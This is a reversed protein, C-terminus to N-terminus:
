GFSIMPDSLLIALVNNNYLLGIMSQVGNSDDSQLLNVIQQYYETKVLVAFPLAIPVIFGGNQLIELVLSTPLVKYGTPPNVVLLNNLMMISEANVMEGFLNFEGVIFNTFIIDGYDLIPTERIFQRTASGAFKVEKVLPIYENNHYYFLRPDVQKYFGTVLPFVDAPPVLGFPIEYAANEEYAFLRPRVSFFANPDIEYTIYFKNNEFTVALPNIDNNLIPLIIQNSAVIMNKTIAVPGTTTIVLDTDFDFLGAIYESFQIKYLTGVLGIRNVLVNYYDFFGFSQDKETGSLIISILDDVFLEIDGNYTLGYYLPVGNGEDIAVTFTQMNVLISTDIIIEVASGVGTVIEYDINDPKFTVEDLNNDYYFLKESNVLSLYLKNAVGPKPLLASVEAYYTSDGDGILEMYFDFVLQSYQEAFNILQSNFNFGAMIRSYAIDFNRVESIGSTLLANIDLIYMMRNLYPLGDNIDQNIDWVKDISGINWLRYINTTDLLDDNTMEEFTRYDIDDVNLIGNENQTWYSNFTINNGTNQGILGNLYLASNNTTSIDPIAYSNIISGFGQYINNNLYGILGGINDDGTLNVQAYSNIIESSDGAKFGEGVMGGIANIGIINSQKIYSELISLDARTRGVFGGVKNDGNITSDTVRNNIIDISVENYGVLGGVEELGTLNLNIVLNDVLLSTDFNQGILGGVSNGGSINASVLNDILTMLSAYGVLGGINNVPSGTYSIDGTFSSNMIVSNTAYSVLGGTTNSRSEITLSSTSDLIFTRGYTHNILGGVENGIISGSTSVNYITSNIATYALVGSEPADINTVNTFEINLNKIEANEIYDFLGIWNGLDASNFSITNGNGDFRGRFYNSANGITLATSLQISNQLSFNLAMLDQRSINTVTSQLPINGFTYTLPFGGNLANLDNVSAIPIWGGPNTSQHYLNNTIDEYSMLSENIIRYNERADFEPEEENGFITFDTTSVVGLFDVSYNVDVETEVLTIRQARGSFVGHYAPDVDYPNVIKDVIIIRPNIIQNRVHFDEYSDGIFGGVFSDGKVYSNNDFEVISDKILAIKETFFPVMEGIFGGVKSRGEVQQNVANVEIYASRNSYGVVGGISSDFIAGGIDGNYNENFSIIQNSILNVDFLLSYYANGIAGGVQNSGRILSQQVSTDYINSKITFGAIGGFSYNIFYINNALPKLFPAADLTLGEVKSSVILSYYAAGAIGGVYLSNEQSVLIQSDKLKANSIIAQYAVGVIGGVEYTGSIISSDVLVNDLIISTNYQNYITGVIGGISDAYFSTEFKNINGSFYLNTIRVVENENLNPDQVELEGIIGGVSSNGIINNSVLVVNNINGQNLGVVGGVLESGEILNFTADINLITNSNRALFTRTNFEQQYQQYPYVENYPYASMEHFPIPNVTAGTINNIGKYWIEGHIVFSLELNQSINIPTFELKLEDGYRMIVLQNDKNVVLSAVDGFRTFSGSQYGYAEFPKSSVQHYDFTKYPYTILDLKSFGRNNLSAASPTLTIIEYEQDESIDVAIMDFITRNIGFRIKFEGVNRDVNNFLTTLDLYNLRPVAVPRRINSSALKADVLNANIWNGNRDLVQLTRLTNQNELDYNTIGYLVLKISNASELNGLDLILPSFYGNDILGYNTWQNDIMSLVSTLDNGETDIAGEIPTLNDSVLKFYTEDIGEDSRLMSYAIQYNPAHMFMMLSVQDVYSIENFENTISIHYKGDEQLGINQSPIQAWDSPDLNTPLMRGLENVFNYNGDSGASFVFPTSSYAGAIRQHIGVIGGVYYRGIVQNNNNILYTIDIGNIESFLTSYGAITGVYDRGEISVNEFILDIVKAPTNNLGDLGVFLGVFDESPRDISLNSIKFGFGDFIGNFSYNAITQDNEDLVKGIPLWNLNNLNINSVLFYNFDLMEEVTKNEITVAFGNADFVYSDIDQGIKALDTANSIPIWGNNILQEFDPNPEPEPEPEIDSQTIQPVSAMDSIAKNYITLADQTELSAYIDLIAKNFIDNLIQYNQSTYFISNYSNFRLTLLDILERLSTVTVPDVLETVEIDIFETITDVKLEIRTSGQKLATVLGFQNVTAISNDLIRYTIQQNTANLPLVSAQVLSSQGVNLSLKKNLTFISTATVRYDVITVRYSTSLGQYNITVNKDGLTTLNLLSYNIMEPVIDIISSTGNSFRLRLQGGAPNIAEFNNFVLKYPLRDIAISELVVKQEITTSSSIPSSASSSTAPSLNPIVFTLVLSIGAIGSIWWWILGRKKRSKIQKKNNDMIVEIGFFIRCIIIIYILSKKYAKNFFNSTCTSKKNKSKYTITFVQLL